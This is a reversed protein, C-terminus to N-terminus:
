SRAKPFFCARHVHSGAARHRNCEVSSAPPSLMLLNAAVTSLMAPPSTARSVVPRCISWWSTTSRVLSLRDRRRCRGSEPVSVDRRAARVRRGRDPLVPRMSRPGRREATAPSRLPATRLYGGWVRSHCAKLRDRLTSTRRPSYLSRCRVTVRRLHAEVKNM